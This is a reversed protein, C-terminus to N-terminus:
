VSSAMSVIAKFKRAKKILEEGTVADDPYTACGFLLRVKDDLNQQSLYGDLKQELKEKVRLTNEKDCDALVVFAEGSLKFVADATRNPSNGARHLSNELLAEMDKLTSNIKKNSLRRKLKDLDAISILLLSMKTDNTSAEKIGDNVYTNFLNETSYIPLTFTFKSGKGSASEVWIKGNHQEIIEKSIALGLGTGGTKRAGGTSLQEFRGFVRSLDKKKIGCGTDSVSVHITGNKKSTKIIINGKETFKIADDVLNTLVQTIKDSDFSCRPLSSDLELLLDLGLNKASSVMMEYIDKVVQNIDNAELNFEMKGADLKQFDLVNNILRTLRDVNRKSIGLLEKQEENIDGSLGDLVIAIGEKIATLPTRLEHSVMSTFESKMKMTEKLKEEAKKRETVDRLSALYVMEGEWEIKVACMEATVMEGRKRIIEIETAEDKVAAFGFTEGLLKEKKRGFLSEAANNVFRIIGKSDIILIGDTNQKIITRLNAEANRLIKNANILESTREEVQKELMEQNERLAANKKELEKKANFLKQSTEQLRSNTDFLLQTIKKQKTIDKAIHVSGTFEGNDDFFPSISVLLPVGINPDDM